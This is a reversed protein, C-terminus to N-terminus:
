ELINGQKLRDLADQPICVTRGIRVTEIKNLWIWQRLTKEAFVNDLYRVAARVRLLKRKGDRCQKM